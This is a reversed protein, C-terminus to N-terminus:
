WEPNTTYYKWNDIKWGQTTWGVWGSEANGVRARGIVEGPNIASSDDIEQSGNIWMEMLDGAGGERLHIRVTYDTSAAFNQAATKVNNADANYRIMLFDLDRPASADVQAVISWTVTTTGTKYFKIMYNTSFTGVTADQVDDFNIVFEIWAETVDAGFDEDVFFTDNDNHVSYLRNDTISLDNSPDTESDWYGGTEPSGTNGRNFNDSHFPLEGGAINILLAPSIAYVNGCFLLLLFLVILLARM